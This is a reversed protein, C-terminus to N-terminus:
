FSDGDHTYKQSKELDPLGPHLCQHVLYQTFDTFFNEPYWIQLCCVSNLSINFFRTVKLNHKWYALFTPSKLSVTVSLVIVCIWLPAQGSLRSQNITHHYHRISARSSSLERALSGDPLGGLCVSWQLGNCFSKPWTEPWLDFNINDISTRSTSKTFTLNNVKDRWNWRNFSM